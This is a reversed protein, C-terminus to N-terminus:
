SLQDPPQWAPPRDKEDVGLAQDVRRSADLEDVNWTVALEAILTDRAKSYMKTEAYSLSAGQSRRALNRVVEACEYVDGSKLKEQHNKFRRSWNTPVRTDTVALLKLVEGAELASIPDRIGLAEARVEPLVVRMGGLAGWGRQPVILVLHSLTEGDVTRPERGIVQAIGHSPYVVKSGVKFAV